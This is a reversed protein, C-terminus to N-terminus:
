FWSMRMRRPDKLFTVSEFRYGILVMASGVKALTKSAWNVVGVVQQSGFVEQSGRSKALGESSAGEGSTLVRAPRLVMSSHVVLPYPIRVTKMQDM